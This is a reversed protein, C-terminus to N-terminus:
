SNFGVLGIKRGEEDLLEPLLGEEVLYDYEEDLQYNPLCDVESRFEEDVMGLTYGMGFGSYCIGKQLKVIETYEQFVTWPTEMNIDGMDKILRDWSKIINNKMQDSVKDNHDYMEKSHPKTIKIGYKIEPKKKM